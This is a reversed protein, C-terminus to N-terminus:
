IQHLSGCYSQCSVSFVLERLAEENEQVNEPRGMLSSVVARGSEEDYFALQIVRVPADSKRKIFGLAAHYESVVYAAKGGCFDIIEMTELEYPTKKLQKAYQKSINEYYKEAFDENTGPVEEWNLSLSLQAGKKPVFDEIRFFGSQFSVGRKPDFCLKWTKPHEISVGYISFLVRDNLTTDM